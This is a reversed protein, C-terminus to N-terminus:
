CRPGRSSTASTSTLRALTPTVSPWRLMPGGRLGSPSYRWEGAARGACTAGPMLLRCSAGSAGRRDTGAAPGPLPRRGPLAGIEQQSLKRQKGPKLNGLSIPGLDTRVLPDGPPRGRHADACWTSAAEHLKVEVM